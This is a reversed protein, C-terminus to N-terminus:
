QHAWLEQLHALEQDFRANVRDKESQQNAAFRKQTALQRDLDELQRKFKDPEKAADAALKQRQSTLDALHRNASALQSEVPALQTAREKDHAAQDPYRTLLARTRKKEDLQRGREEAATRAMEEEAAREAPTQSPGVKRVLTGSPSLERQERDICDLIPGDSTLRRGKADVCTFINQAMASPVLAAVGCILALRHLGRQMDRGAMGQEGHANKMNNPRM